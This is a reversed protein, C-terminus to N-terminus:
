LFVNRTDLDSLLREKRASEWNNLLLCYRQHVEYKFCSM